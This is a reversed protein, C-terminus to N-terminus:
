EPMKANAETASAHAAAEIRLNAACKPCRQWSADDLSGGALEIPEACAPCLCAIQYAVTRRKFARMGMFIGLLPLAWTSVLHVLPVVLCVTGGVLGGVIWLTGIAIRAADSYRAVDAAEGARHVGQENSIDVM